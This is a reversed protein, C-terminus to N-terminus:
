QAEALLPWFDELDTEELAYGRSAQTDRNTGGARLM